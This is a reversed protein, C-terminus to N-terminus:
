QDEPTVLPLAHGDTVQILALKTEERSEEMIVDFIIDKLLSKGVVNDAVWVAVNEMEVIFESSCYDYGNLLLFYASLAISTRKNGDNFAHNKNISFCLHTIKDLFEPYYDDNQVHELVSELRGIDLVGVTGGSHKIIYDHVQVAHEVNFYITLM